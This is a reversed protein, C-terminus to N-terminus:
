LGAFSQMRSLKLQVKGDVIARIRTHPSHSGGADGMVGPISVRRCSVDNPCVIFDLLEKIAKCVYDYTM